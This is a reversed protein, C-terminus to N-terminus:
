QFLEVLNDILGDISKEAEEAAIELYRIDNNSCLNWM